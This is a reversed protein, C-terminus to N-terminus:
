YVGGLLNNCKWWVGLYEKDVSLNVGDFGFNILGLNWVWRRNDCIMWIKRM